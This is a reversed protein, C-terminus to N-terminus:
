GPAPWTSTGLFMVVRPPLRWYAAQAVHASTCPGFQRAHAALPAQVM